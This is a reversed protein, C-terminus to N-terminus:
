GDKVIVLYGNTSNLVRWGDGLDPKEAGSRLVVVDWAEQPKPLRFRYPRPWPTYHGELPFLEDVEEQYIERPANHRLSFSQTPYRWGYVVVLENSDSLSDITQDVSERLRMANEMRSSHADLDNLATKVLLLGVLLLVGGGFASSKVLRPWQVVQSATALLLLGGMVITYRLAVQRSLMMLIVASALLYFIPVFNRSKLGHKLISAMSAVMLFIYIISWIKASLFIVSWNHLMTSIDIGAREGSGYAGDNLAMRSLFAFMRPYGEVMYSTILLFSGVVGASFCTLVAVRRRVSVDLCLMVSLVFAVAYSVFLFKLGLCLGVSIGVFFGGAPRIDVNSCTRLFSFIFVSVVFFYFAEPGWVVMRELATPAVFFLWISAITVLSGIRSVLCLVLIASGLFIFSLVCYDAVLQFLEYETPASGVFLLILASLWQVPVGPNDLNSPAFGDLIERGSWYYLSEVHDFYVWAELDYAGQKLYYHVVVPLISLLWIFFLSFPERQLGGKFAGLSLRRGRTLEVGDGVPHPTSRAIVERFLPEDKNRM